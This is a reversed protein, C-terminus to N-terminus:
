AHASSKFIEPAPSIGFPLRLWRYRGFPTEFTTLRSSADDLKLHWFGDKADLTSFIKAGVLQPLVDEITPTCYQARKLAQNLTIKPDICIRIRGDAKAVVLLPSVWSSPESVPVIIGSDELRQLEAAVKDRVGIPLRRLPMQVPQVTKDIELHVDGEILGVGDFLDAYETMIEAETVCSTKNLSKQKLTLADSATAMRVVCVNEVVLRLLQLKQCATFGLLAQEHKAAVM